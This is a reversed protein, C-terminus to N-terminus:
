QGSAPQTTPAVTETRYTQDGTLGNEVSPEFYIQENHYPALRTAVPRGDVTLQNTPREVKIMKGAGVHGSWILQHNNQDYVYARGAQPATFVVERNGEATLNAGPAVEAPRQDCGIAGLTLLAGALSAASFRTFSRMHAELGTEPLLRFKKWASIRVLADSLDSRQLCFALRPGIHSTLPFFSCTEDPM